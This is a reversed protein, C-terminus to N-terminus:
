LYLERSTPLVQSLIEAKSELAIDTAAQQDEAIACLSKLVVQGPARRTRCAGEGTM